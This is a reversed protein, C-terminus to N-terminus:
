TGGGDSLVVQAGTEEETREIFEQLQTQTFLTEEEEVQPRGLVLYEADLEHCVGIIEERVNGHRVLTEANIGQAAAKTQATLLIFEGMQHMDKSITHVRTSSTHALFDLNVVYLFYLPLGTGQALAIAKAITAKSAPGGRISCVIGSL